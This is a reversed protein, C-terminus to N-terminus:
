GRPLAGPSTNRFIEGPGGGLFYPTKETVGGPLFKQAGGGCHALGM